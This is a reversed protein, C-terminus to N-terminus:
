DFPTNGVFREWTGGVTNAQSKALEKFSNKLDDYTRGTNVADFLGKLVQDSDLIKKYYKVEYSDLMKILEDRHKSTFRGKSDRGQLLKRGTIEELRNLSRKEIAKQGKITISEMKKLSNLMLLQNKLYEINNALFEPNTEFESVHHRKKWTQATKYAWKTRGAKELIKLQREIHNAQKNNYDILTKLAKADGKEALRAEHSIRGAGFTYYKAKM